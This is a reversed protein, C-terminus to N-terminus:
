SLEAMNGAISQAVSQGGYARHNKLYLARISHVITDARRAMSTLVLDQGRQDSSKDLTKNEISQAYDFINQPAHELALEFQCGILLNEQRSNLLLSIFLLNLFPSGDRKENLLVSHGSKGRRIMSTIKRPRQRQEYPQLFRCNLGLVERSRYGTLAEFAANVYILPCDSKTPDALAVSVSSNRLTAILHSM